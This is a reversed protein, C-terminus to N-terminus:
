AELAANGPFRPAKVDAELRFLRGHGAGRKGEIGGRDGGADGRMDRGPVALGRRSHQDGDEGAALDHM